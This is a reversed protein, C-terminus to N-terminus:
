LCPLSAWTLFAAFCWMGQKLAGMAAVRFAFESSDVVHAQGDELVYRVGVVQNGTLPGANTAELFGKEVAPIYCTPISAGTVRNIFANAFKSRGPGGDASAEGGDEEKWALPEVYGSVRAYQGAGGSQKKHQFDFNAKQTITEKYSVM